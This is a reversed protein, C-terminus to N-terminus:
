AAAEQPAASVLSAQGGESLALVVTISEISFSPTFVIQVVVRGNDLDNQSMTSRDCRVRFADQPTAGDLAGAQYLGTMLGSMRNRIRSWLREGSPEFTMDEGLVRAARVLM